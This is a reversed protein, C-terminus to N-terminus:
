VELDKPFPSTLNVTCMFIDSHKSLSDLARVSQATRVKPPFDTNIPM